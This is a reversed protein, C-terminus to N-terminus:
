DPLLWDTLVDLIMAEDDDSIGLFPRAPLGPHEVAGSVPHAAGPWHLARKNKPRITYPSTGFQHFAAYELPSGIELSDGTVRKVINTSLARTEGVLPKGGRKVPAWASGDPATSTAFRRKTSDILQDGILEFAPRLDRGKDILAQLAARVERDDWEVTYAAM